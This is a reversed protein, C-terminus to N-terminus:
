PQGGGSTQGRIRVQSPRPRKKHSAGAGDVRDGGRGTRSSGAANGARRQQLAEPALEAAAPVPPGAAAAVGPERQHTLEKRGIEGGGALQEVVEGLAERGAAQLHLHEGAHGGIGVVAALGFAEFELGVAADAAATHRAEPGLADAAAGDVADEEAQADGHAQQAIGAAAVQDEVGGLRGVQGQEAPQQM